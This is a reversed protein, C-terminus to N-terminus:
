SADLSALTVQQNLYYELLDRDLEMLQYPCSMVLCFYLPMVKKIVYQHALINMKRTSSRQRAAESM